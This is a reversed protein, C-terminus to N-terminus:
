ISKTHEDAYRMSEALHANYRIHKIDTEDVAWAPMALVSM